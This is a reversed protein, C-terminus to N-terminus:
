AVGYVYYEDGEAYLNDEAAHIALAAIDDRCTDMIYSIVFWPTQMEEAKPFAGDIRQQLNPEFTLIGNSIAVLLEDTAKEVAKAQQDKTLQTFTKM